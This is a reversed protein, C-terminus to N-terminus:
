LTHMSWDPLLRFKTGNIWVCFVEVQIGLGWCVFLRVSLHASVSAFMLLCLMMCEYFFFAPMRGFFRICFYVGIDVRSGYMFLGLCGYGNIWTDM